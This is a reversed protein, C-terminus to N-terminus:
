RDTAFELNLRCHSDSVPRPLSVALYVVGAARNTTRPPWERRVSRALDFLHLSTPQNVQLVSLAKIERWLALAAARHPKV